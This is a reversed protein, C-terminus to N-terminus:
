DVPIEINDPTYLKVFDMFNLGHGQASYSNYLKEITKEDFIKGLAIKLEPLDIVGDKNLDYEEFVKKFTVFVRPDALKKGQPKPVTLPNFEQYTEGIFRSLRILQNKSAKYFLIQLLEYFSIEKISDPDLIDKINYHLNVLVPYLSNIKCVGNTAVSDFKCKLAAIEHKTIPRSDIIVSLNEDRKEYFSSRIKRRVSKVPRVDSTKNGVSGYRNNKIVSTFKPEIPQNIQFVEYLILNQRVWIVIRLLFYENSTMETRDAFLSQTLAKITNNEPCIGNTVVCIGIIFCKIMIFFEDETLNKSGDFDFIRIAILIKQEWDIYSYIIIAALLEMM